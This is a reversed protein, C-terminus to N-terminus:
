AATRRRFSSQSIFIVVALLVLWFTAPEPVDDFIFDTRHIYYFPEGEFRTYRGFMLARGSGAVDSDVLIDETSLDVVTLHGSMTFRTAPLEFAIFENPQPAPLTPLSLPAADFLLDDNSPRGLSTFTGVSVSFPFCRGLSPRTQPIATSGGSISGPPQSTTDGEVCAVAFLGDVARLDFFISRGYGRSDIEPAGALTLSGTLISAAILASKTACLLATLVLM